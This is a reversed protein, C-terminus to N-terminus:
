RGRALLSRSSIKAAAPDRPSYQRFAPGGGTVTIVNHSLHSPLRNSASLRPYHVNIAAIVAKNRAM